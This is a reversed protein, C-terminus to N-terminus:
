ALVLLTLSGVELHWRHLFPTLPEPPYHVVAGEVLEDPFVVGGAAIPYVDGATAVHFLVAM